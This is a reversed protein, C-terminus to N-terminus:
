SVSTVADRASGGEKPLYRKFVSQFDDAMYGRVRRKEDVRWQKPRIKFPALLKSLGHATIPKGHDHEAWPRDELDTLRKIIATTPWKRDGDSNFIARLDQLLMIGQSEDDDVGSFKLAAKRALDPWDGGCADAIAFM